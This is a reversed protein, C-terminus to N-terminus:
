FALGLATGGLASVARFVIAKVTSLARLCVRDRWFTHVASMLAKGERARDIASDWGKDEM